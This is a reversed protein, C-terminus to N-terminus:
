PLVESVKLEGVNEGALVVPVTDKEGYVVCSKYGPKKGGKPQTFVHIQRNPIDVVWYEPIKAAAYVELKEGLDVDLSTDSVEVVVFIDGQHPHRGKYRSKPGQVVILDPEPVSSSVPLSSPCYCTLTKPLTDRFWDALTNTVFHHPPNISMKTVLRGNLLEVRDEPTLIGAECMALYKAVSILYSQSAGDRHDTVPRSRPISLTAL